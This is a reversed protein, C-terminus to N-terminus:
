TSCLRRNTSLLSPRNTHEPISSAHHLPRVHLGTLASIAPEFGTAEAEEIERNVGGSGEPTNGQGGNERQLRDVFFPAFDPQPVVAVVRDDKVEISQSSSGRWSTGNSQHRQQGHRRSTASFRQRRREARDVVGDDGATGHASGAASGTGGSVGRADPGGVRVARRHARAPERDRAARRDADTRQEGASEYLAVVEAVIDDPLHFTKLYTTIQEEIVSLLVRASRSM